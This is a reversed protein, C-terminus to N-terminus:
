GAVGWWLLALGIGGLVAALYGAVVILSRQRPAEQFWLVGSWAAALVGVFFWAWAGVAADDSIGGTSDARYGSAIMVGIGTVLLLPGVVLKMWNRSFTERDVM